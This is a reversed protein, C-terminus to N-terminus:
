EFIIEKRSEKRQIDYERINMFDHDDKIADALDESDLLNEIFEKLNFNRNLRDWTKRPIVVQKETITIM